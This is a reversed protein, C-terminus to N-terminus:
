PSFIKNGLSHEAKSSPKCKIYGKGVYDLIEEQQSNGPSIWRKLLLLPFRVEKSVKGMFRECLIAGGPKTGMLLVHM